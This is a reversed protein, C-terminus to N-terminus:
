RPIRRGFLLNPESRDFGIQAPATPPHCEQKCQCRMACAALWAVIMSTRVDFKWSGDDYCRIQPSIKFGSWDVSVKRCRAYEAMYGSMASASPDVRRSAGVNAASSGFIDVLGVTGWRSADFIELTDCSLTCSSSSSGGSGDFASVSAGGAIGFPARGAPADTGYEDKECPM